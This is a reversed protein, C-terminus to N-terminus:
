SAVLSVKRHKCGVQVCSMMLALFLPQLSAPRSGHLATPAYKRVVRDATRTRDNSFTAVGYWAWAARQAFGEAM